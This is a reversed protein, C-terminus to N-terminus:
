KYNVTTYKPFHGNVCLFFFIVAICNGFSALVTFSYTGQANIASRVNLVWEWSDALWDNNFCYGDCWDTVMVLWRLNGDCWVVDCGM